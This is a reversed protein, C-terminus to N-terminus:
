RRNAQRERMQKQVEIMREETVVNVSLKEVGHIPTKVFTREKQVPAVSMPSAVGPIATPVSQIVKDGRNQEEEPFGSNDTTSPDWGRTLVVESIIKGSIIWSSFNVGRSDQMPVNPFFEVYNRTIPKITLTMDDGSGEVEIPFYDPRDMAVTNTEQDIFYPWTYTTSTNSLGILHHPALSWSSVPDIMYVSFPVQLVDNGNEDKSVEIYWKPGFDDFMSEVDYSSYDNSVFLDFASRYYTFNESDVYKKGSFDFGNCLIRNQGRTRANLVDARQKFENYMANTAAADVGYGAYLALQSDTLAEPYEIKGIEVKSKLVETNTKVVDKGDEGRMSSQWTVTASATWTTGELLDFYDSEVREADPMPLSRNTAIAESDKPNIETYDLQSRNPTGEDNEAYIMLLIQEDPQVQLMFDYGKDTNILPIMSAPLMNGATKNGEAIDLYTAPNLAGAYARESDAFFYAADVDKNPAKINFWVEFPSPDEGTKPNKDLPTVVVKPEPNKPSPLPFDGYTFSQIKGEDDGMATIMVRYKGNRKIPALNAINVMAEFPEKTVKYTSAFGWYFADYTTIFSQMYADPDPTALFYRRIMAYSSEEMVSICFQKVGPDATLLLNGGKPTLYDYKVHVKAEMPEPKELMVLAARYYGGAADWYKSERNYYTWSGALDDSTAMPSPVPASLPGVETENWYTDYDFVPLYWGEGWGADHEGYKFEGTFFLRAEGPVLSGNYWEFPVNTGNEDKTYVWNGDEDQLVSNYLNVTFTRDETIHNHYVEDNLNLAAAHGGVNALMDVDHFLTAVAYKLISEGKKVSEPVKVFVKFSDHTIDFVEFDGRAKATTFEFHCVQGFLDGDATEFALYVIYKTEAQMDGHVLVKNAGDKLDFLNGKAEADAFIMSAKVADASPEEDFVLYAGAVLNKSQINLELSGMDIKGPTAKVSASGDAYSFFVTEDETCGSFGMAMFVGALLTLYYFFSKM